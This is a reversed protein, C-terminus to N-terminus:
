MLFYFCSIYKSKIAKTILCEKIGRKGNGGNVRKDRRGNWNLEKAVSASLISAWARRIYDGKPHKATPKNGLKTIM